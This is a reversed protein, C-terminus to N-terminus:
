IFNFVIKIFTVTLLLSIVLPSFLLMKKFFSQSPHLQWSIGSNLLTIVMIIAPILLFEQRSALRDNGWLLSYFLPLKPPLSRLGLLITVALILGIIVPFLTIWLVLKNSIVFDESGKKLKFM